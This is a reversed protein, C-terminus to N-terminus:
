APSESDSEPKNLFYYLHVYRYFNQRDPYHQDWEERTCPRPAEEHLDMWEEQTVSEGGVHLTIREKWAVDWGSVLADAERDTFLSHCVLKGDETMWREGPEREEGYSSLPWCDQSVVGLFAIGGPKLVRHMEAIAQATDAKNLHCMSYHEYVYDFFVDGFPLSRMDAVDLQIPLGTEQCFTRSREIQEPSIDIGYADMGQEAFIALPPVRGGAGCDLIKKGELSDGEDLSTKLVSLFRDVPSANPRLITPKM